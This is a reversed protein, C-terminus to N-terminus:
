PRSLPAVQEAKLGLMDMWRRPFVGASKHFLGLRM